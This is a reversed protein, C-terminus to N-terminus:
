AEGLVAVFEASGQHECDCCEGLCDDNQICFGDNQICFGDNKICFKLCFQQLISSRVKEKGKWGYVYIYGDSVVCWRRKFKKTGKAVNQHFLLGQQESGLAASAVAMSGDQKTDQEGPAGLGAGAGGAGEGGNGGVCVIAAREQQRFRQREDLAASMATVREAVTHTDITSLVGFSTHFCAAHANLFDMVHQTTLARRMQVAEMGSYLDFRQMDLRQKKSNLEEDAQQLAQREAQRKLSLSSKLADEYKHRASDYDKKKERMPKIQVDYFERMPKALVADVQEGLVKLSTAVQQGEDSVAIGGVESLEAILASWCGAASALAAVYSESLRQVTKLRTGFAEVEDISHRIQTRLLPTDSSLLAPPKADDASGTRPLVDDLSAFLAGLDDAGGGGLPHNPM